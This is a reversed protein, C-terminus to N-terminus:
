GQAGDNGCCVWGNGWADLGDGPRQEIDAFGFMWGGAICRGCMNGRSGLARIKEPIEYGSRRSLNMFWIIM